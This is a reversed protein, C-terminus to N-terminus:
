CVSQRVLRAWLSETPREGRAAQSLVSANIRALSGPRPSGVPNPCPGPSAPASERIPGAPAPERSARVLPNVNMLSTDGHLRELSHRKGGQCRNHQEAQTSACAHGRLIPVRRNAGSDSGDAASDEGTAASDSRNAPGGNASDDAVFDTVISNRRYLDATPGLRCARIAPKLQVATSASADTRRHKNPESDPPVMCVLSTPFVAKSAIPGM